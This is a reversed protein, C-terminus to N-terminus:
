CRGDRNLASSDAVGDRHRFVLACQARNAQYMMAECAVYGEFAEDSVVGEQLEGEGPVVPCAGASVSVTVTETITANSPGSAGAGNVTITQRVTETVTEAVPDGELVQRVERIFGDRRAAGDRDFVAAQIIDAHYTM